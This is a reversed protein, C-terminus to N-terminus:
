LGFIGRASRLGLGLADVDERTNYLAFSARVVAPLGFRRLLPEACLHGARVMVGADDLVTSVDHAHVGELTFSVIGANGEAGGLVVVGPIAELVSRAYTSLAREHSAVADIGVTQLYKVARGLGVAGALNPTGAEFRRPPSAWSARELEVEDVMGGGSFLPALEAWIDAKAYLVGIGFPGYMKHGSFAYFDCDLARVDVPSRSVAQAGDVLVRAGVRHASQVMQEVPNLTGLVNSVHALAVLRTRAGLLREYAELDLAGQDDVPIHLLRASRRRCLEQWPLLNSHHELGSVIVEDGPGVHDDGWARAVMNIAATCGSSFVVEHPHEAVILRQVSVRAAEYASTAKAGLRYAGRQVNACGTTYVEAIADVVCRPKQTTAANDLYVLPKGNVQLLLAPFDRKLEHAPFPAGSPGPSQESSARRSPQETTGTM